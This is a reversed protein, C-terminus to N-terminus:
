DFQALIAKLGDLIKIDQVLNSTIEGNIYREADNIVKEELKKIMSHVRLKKDMVGVQHSKDIDTKPDDYAIGLQDLIPRITYFDARDTKLWNRITTRSINLKRSIDNKSYFAERSIAENIVKNAGLYVLRKRDLVPNNM